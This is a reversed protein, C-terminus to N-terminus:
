QPNNFARWAPLPASLWPAFQTMFSLRNRVSWVPTVLM